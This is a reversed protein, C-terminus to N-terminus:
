GCLRCSAVLLLEKAHRALKPALRKLERDGEIEGGAQAALVLALPSIGPPRPLAAIRALVLAGAADVFVLTAGDAAAELIIEGGEALGWRELEAPHVPLPAACASFFDAFIGAPGSGPLTQLQGVLEDWHPTNM